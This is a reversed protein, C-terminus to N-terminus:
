LEAYDKPLLTSYELSYGIFNNKNKFTELVGGNELVANNMEADSIVLGAVSILTSRLVDKGVGGPAMAVSFIENLVIRQANFLAAYQSNFAVLSHLQIFPGPYYAGLMALADVSLDSFSPYTTLIFEKIDYAKGLPVTKAIELMKNNIVTDYNLKQETSLLTYKIINSIKVLMAVDYMKLFYEATTEDLGTNNPLSNIHTIIANRVQDGTTLKEDTIKNNILTKISNKENDTFLIIKSTFVYNRFSRLDWLIRDFRTGDFITEITVVTPVVVPAPMPESAAVPRPNPKAVPKSKGCGM